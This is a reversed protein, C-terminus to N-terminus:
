QSLTLERSFVIKNLVIWADLPKPHISYINKSMKLILDSFSGHPYAGVIIAIDKDSYAKFQNSLNVLSGKSSFLFRNKEPIDKIEVELTTDLMNLLVKDKSKIERNVLFQEILGVFRNYNRPLRTEQNIVFIENRITHVIITVPNSKDLVLPSGLLNLLCFHLIDPRGRKQSDKLKLMAKYHYSSDLLIQSPLKGKKKAHKKILEMKAIKTPILELASDAFVFITRPM